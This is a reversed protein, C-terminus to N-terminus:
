FGFTFLGLTNEFHQHKQTRFHKSKDGIRVISGCECTYPQKQQESVKERNVQRYQRRQESNEKRYQQRQKLIKEQNEKRYEKRYELREDQSVIPRKKNICDMRDIWYRERTLLQEKSECPYEEILIIRCNEVGDEQFMTHTMCKYITDIYTRHGGMRKSLPQVTSGIYQKDSVNSVIRYIKGRAYKNTEM